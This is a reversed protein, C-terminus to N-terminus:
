DLITRFDQCLSPETVTKLLEVTDKPIKGILHMKYVQLPKLLCKYIVKHNSLKVVFAHYCLWEAAEFPFIGFADKSGLSVGPNKAKLIFYCCSATDSIIRLFFYPNNRVKQNFPLQLVCAHFRSYDCYVELTQMDLLLGCWSILRCDPLQKFKSCGPIDDVPFNVVTKKANILFGYEPIGTAITRLFTRAQMLHPTVLLFDDILRILVGDKQIGCLLNNEMDGYCLSCLLTSLISGQPIGSCQVYYRHGIELINNHLMQLFFTFLTSSNENFSLCQLILSYCNLLFRKVFYFHPMEGGAELAKTVFEKWKRYIDDRGFVSSGIISTNVTREYNLVSFLNKLQTNYRQIKGRLELAVWNDPALQGAVM